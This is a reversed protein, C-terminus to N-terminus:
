PWFWRPAAPCSSYQSALGPGPFDIKKQPLHMISSPILISSPSLQHSLLALHYGQSKSFIIRPFHPPPPPHCLCISAVTHCSDRLVAALVLHVCSTLLFIVYVYMYQTYVYKYKWIMFINGLMSSMSLIYIATHQERRILRCKYRWNAWDSGWATPTWSLIMATFPTRPVGSSIMPPMLSELSVAVQCTNVDCLMKIRTMIIMMPKCFLINKKSTYKLFKLQSSVLWQWGVTHRNDDECTQSPYFLM